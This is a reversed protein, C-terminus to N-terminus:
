PFTRHMLLVHLREANRGLSAPTMARLVCLSTFVGEERSILKPLLKSDLVHSAKLSLM